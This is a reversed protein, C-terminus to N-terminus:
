PQCKWYRVMKPRVREVMVARRPERESRKEGKRLAVLLM